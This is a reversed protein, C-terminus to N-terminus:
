IKKSADDQNNMVPAKSLEDKQINLENIQKQIDEMQANIEQKSENDAFARENLLQDYQKKLDSIQSEIEFEASRNETANNINTYDNNNDKDSPEKAKDDSSESEPQERDLDPQESSPKYKQKMGTRVQNAHRRLDAEDMGFMAAQEDIDNAFEGNRNLAKTYQHLRQYKETFGYNAVENGNRDLTIDCKQIGNNRQITYNKGNASTQKVESYAQNGNPGGFAMKIDTTSGDFNTQSINMVGNEDFSVKRDLFKNNVNIGREKLIVMSAAKLVTERDFNSDKIVTNLMDMNLTGDKKVLYKEIKPNFAFEEREVEGKGNRVTRASLFKDSSVNTARVSRASLDREKAIIHQQAFQQVNKSNNAVRTLGHKQAFQHVNESVGSLIEMRVNSKTKSMQWNGNADLEDRTTVKRGMLNRHYHERATVNGNEDYFEAGHETKRAILKGNDDYIDKANILNGNEDRDRNYMLNRRTDNAIDKVKNGIEARLSQKEKSWVEKGDKNIMVSRTVKQGLLNRNTRQYGIINGNDDKIADGGKAYNKRMTDIGSRIKSGVFHDGAELAAGGLTKSAKFATKGVKSAGQAFTAGVNRGMDGVSAAKAFKGAFNKGEDLFVWGILCVVILKLGTVGWYALGNIPDILFDFGIAADATNHVATMFQNVVTMIIYLIISLFVFNFMANMFFDWITKLYNATIKFAWAGIAAPALATAVSMQIVCDILCWPFALMLIFGGLMLVIGTIMYPLNPFILFSKPGWAVCWAQRGYAVMTSVSDQTSKISCLIQEGMSQPLGGSSSQTFQGSYGSVGQAYSAGSSCAGSGTVTQVFTMGTKFVPELTLHIIQFYSGKLIIVVLFVRFAQLLIEQLMKRPDKVEFASVQKLVYVSVWIAFGVVVLIAIDGALAEYSKKAITSATNFLAKFMPCFWCSKQDARYKEIPCNDDESAFSSKVNIQTTSEYTQIDDLGFEAQVPSSLICSALIISCTVKKFIHLINKIM